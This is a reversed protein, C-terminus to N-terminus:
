GLEGYVFDNLTTKKFRLLKTYFQMHVREIANAQCFGWVECSYNLIPSILKDFLELKHKPAVFTFEYLYKNLKFIAKQAQGTLMNQAESFSGETTFVIGLYKFTKVIEIVQHEYMFVLNRPLTGGKRFILFKTKSVNVKLKWRTCCDSLLNLGIQLEEANNAFIFIDDAYLLMFLKFIDIDLGEFDSHIFQDEIDNLFIFIFPSLPM